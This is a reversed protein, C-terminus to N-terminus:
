CRPGNSADTALHIPPFFSEAKVITLVDDHDAGGDEPVIAQALTVAPDDPASDHVVVSSRRCGPAAARWWFRRPACTMAWSACCGSAGIRCIAAVSKLWVGPKCPFVAPLVITGVLAALGMAVLLEVLTHGLCGRRRM